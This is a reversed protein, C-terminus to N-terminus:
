NDSFVRRMEEVKTVSLGKSKDIRIYLMMHLARHRISVILSKRPLHEPTFFCIHLIIIKIPM